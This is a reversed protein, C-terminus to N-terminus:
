EYHWLNSTRIENQLQLLVQLQIKYINKNSTINPHSISRILGIVHNIYLSMIKRRICLLPSIGLLSCAFMDSKFTKYTNEKSFPRNEILHIYKLKSLYIMKKHPFANRFRKHIYFEEAYMFIREDFLGIQMFLDKKVLFFAGQLWMRRYDYKDLKSLIKFGISQLVAPADHDYYFSSAPKEISSHQKGGCMIVNRDKLSCLMKAFVPMILRIDPNMIAIIPASSAKIGINNGQGYGGNKENKIVIVEPYQTQLKQRMAEFCASNNDVVIIELEDGIDNYQYVSRLCDYIDKESNYTLIILSLRKM